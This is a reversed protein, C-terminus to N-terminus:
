ASGSYRTRIGVRKDGTNKRLPGRAGMGGPGSRMQPTSIQGIVERRAEPNEILKTEVLTLVGEQDVLLLDLSGGSVPMERRLMAFRPPDGGAPNMQSGPMVEPYREILGQLAAELTRGFLGVRFPRAPLPWLHEGALLFVSEGTEKM